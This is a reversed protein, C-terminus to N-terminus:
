ISRATDGISLVRWTTASTSACTERTTASFWYALLRLLTSAVGTRRHEAVVYISQLEGDCGFRRTLHGAIYGVPADDQLAMWMTRPLLAQQPHHEGALYRTMRDPSAGGAEDERRLAAL